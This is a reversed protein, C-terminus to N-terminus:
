LQGGLGQLSRGQLGPVLDSGKYCRDVSKAACIKQMKCHHSRFESEERLIGRKGAGQM